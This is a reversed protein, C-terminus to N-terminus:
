APAPPAPCAPPWTRPWSCPRRRRRRRAPPRPPWSMLASSGGHRPMGDAVAPEHGPAPRRRILEAIVALKRAAARSEQRQWAALVGILEDDTAGPCRGDPGTVEEAFAAVALDPPAADLPGGSAFGGAAGARRAATPVSRPLFGADWAEAGTEETRADAEAL